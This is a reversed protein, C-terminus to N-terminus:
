SAPTAPTGEGAPTATEEAVRPPEIHAVARDHGEGRHLETLEVGAPLKLDSLHLHDGVNMGSVDVEIFEPLNAPLCAVDVENLEHIFLGGATKVGPAIDVGTFHLPVRLHMTANADVRQLDAHLIVPRAPHRQLDRLVAQVPNGDISVTLIHSYFAEDELRRMLENHNLSLALPEGGGGYIIAPVRGTRRLRRSAGKGMDNRSEASLEFTTGM